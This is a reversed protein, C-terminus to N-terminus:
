HMRVKGAEEKFRAAKDTLKNAVGAPKKTVGGKKAGLVKLITTASEAASM